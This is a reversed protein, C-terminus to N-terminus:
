GTYSSAASGGRLAAVDTARRGGRFFRRRDDTVVQRRDRLPLRASLYAPLATPLFAMPEYFSGAIRAERVLVHDHTDSYLVLVAGPHAQKTLYALQIGNFEGLRINAIVAGPSTKVLAQRATAFTSHVSPDWGVSIASTVLRSAYDQSPEVLIAQPRM